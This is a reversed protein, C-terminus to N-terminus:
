SGIRYYAASAFNRVGADRDTKMLHDLTPLAAQAEKGIEGLSEASLGRVDPSEDNLATILAQIAQDSVPRVLGLIVVAGKRLLLDSAKAQAVLAPVGDALPLNVDKAAHALKAREFRDEQPNVVLAMVGKKVSASDPAIIAASNAAAFRVGEDADHFARVLMPIAPRGQDGMESLSVAIALRTPADKSRLGAAVRQARGEAPAIKGLAEKAAARVTDSTDTSELRALRPVAALSAPGFGGLVEACKARVQPTDDNLARNLPGVAPGPAGIKALVDAALLQTEVEEHGLLIAVVGAADAAREGVAGVANLVAHRVSAVSDVLADSLQPIAPAARPGLAQLKTAADLRVAPDQDRLRLALARADTSQAVVGTPMALSAILCLLLPVKLARRPM